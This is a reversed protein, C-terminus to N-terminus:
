WEPLEVVLDGAVAGQCTLVHWDLLRRIDPDKDRNLVGLRELVAVMVAAAANESGSSIKVAVGTGSAPLAAAWVGDSGSKAVFAYRRILHTEIRDTGGIYFPANLYADRITGLEDSAAEALMRYGRAIGLLPVALTPVGCGDLGSAADPADLMSRVGDVVMKQVPHDQHSYNRVRTGSHVCALLMSVHKGSCNNTLPKEVVWDRYPHHTGCELDSESIGNASLMRTLVTTHEQEGNHSSAMLAVEEDSFEGRRLAERLLVALQFPKGCSRLPVPVSANGVVIMRDDRVIAITGRHSVERVGCRTTFALTPCNETM